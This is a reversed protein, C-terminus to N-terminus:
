LKKSRKIFSVSITADNQEESLEKPTEKSLLNKSELRDRIRALLDAYMLAPKKYEQNSNLKENEM